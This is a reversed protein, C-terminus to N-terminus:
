KQYVTTTAQKFKSKINGLSESHGIFLFGGPSLSQYFKRVLEEQTEKNFYIMVNRCFIIDFESQWPFQDM